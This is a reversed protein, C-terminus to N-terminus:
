LEPTNYWSNIAKYITDIKFGRSALFRMAKEKQKTLPEKELRKMKKTLARLAVEAEDPYEEDAVREALEPHIGKQNLERKILFKGRPRFEIRDSIFDKAYQTDNLYNLEKLRDLVRRIEVILSEKSLPPLDGKEVRKDYFAILKKRMGLVTYKRKSLLTLAKQMLGEYSVCKNGSSNQPM